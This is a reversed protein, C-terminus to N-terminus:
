DKTECIGCNPSYKKLYEFIARNNMLNFQNIPIGKKVYPCLKADGRSDVYISFFPIPCFYKDEIDMSEVFCKKSHQLLIKREKCYKKMRKIIDDYEQQHHKTLVEDHMEMGEHVRMHRIDIVYVNKFKSYFRISKELEHFNSQMLTFNIRIRPLHNPSNSVAQDLEELNGIIRNFDSGVRISQATEKSAGDLSLIVEDVHNDICSDIVKKGLLMGNTAFSRFPIGYGSSSKLFETFNLNVLPEAGCSLYLMRTRSFFKTAVKDFTEKDINVKEFKNNKSLYCM